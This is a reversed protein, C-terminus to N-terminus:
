FWDPYKVILEIDEGHSEFYSIFNDMGGALDICGKSGLDAGGHISLNTRGQTNTKKDPELWIRDNGWSLYGWPWEGYGMYNKIHQRLTTQTDWYNQKNTQKVHWKGEPIPGLNQESTYKRSQYDKHGSMAPWEKVKQGNEYWMLKQGDFLLYTKGKNEEIPEAWCRCNPAEGPNGGKPPHESDFVKGDRSAHWPRVKDDEQTHWIYKTM